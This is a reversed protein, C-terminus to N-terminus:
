DFFLRTGPVEVADDPVEDFWDVAAADREEPIDAEVGTGDTAPSASFVVFYRTAAREEDELRAEFYWAAELADLEIPLGTNEEVARRAVEAYDEGSDVPLIPLKRSCDETLKRLLVEGDANTVGVVAVNDLDEVTDFTEGDVVDTDEHFEVDDRGRLSEPDTISEVATTASAEGSPQTTM